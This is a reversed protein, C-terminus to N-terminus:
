VMPTRMPELMPVVSVAHIRLREPMSPSLGNRLISFGSDKEGMMARIPTMMIIVAFCLRVLSIPLIMTPNETSIVPIVSILPATLGSASEGCNECMRVANRLGMM